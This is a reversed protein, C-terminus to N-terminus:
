SRIVFAQSASFDLKFSVYEKRGGISMPIEGWAPDPIALMVVRGDGMTVKMKITLSIGPERRRARNLIAEIMNFIASHDIHFELDGSVGNFVTDYRNSTEGLYGEELKEFNWSLSAQKVANISPGVVGDQQVSVTVEQGKVRDM